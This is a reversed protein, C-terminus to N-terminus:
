CSLVEPTNGDPLSYDLIAADPRTSNWIPDANACSDAGMAEHDHQEFYDCIAERIINEDELVLIRQKSIV